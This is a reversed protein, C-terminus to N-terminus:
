IASPSSFILSSDNGGFGFSNSMVHRLRVDTLNETVPCFDLGPDKTEFRLNAPIFRHQICLISIVAELAGAASTTHGSFCKTSGVYPMKDGFLAKLAVGESLDNNETGTGHANVYDIDSPSLGAVDLAAQMAALAGRGDPSSATQHYADCANGWGSLLARVRAGRMDAHKKSEMVIFAAGEGLNLGKRSADFPRCPNSDLIMLSNFGNLHYKTLCETGGAIVIDYEGSLILEAGFAIANAAASCATSIVDTYAVDCSLADAIFDTSVGNLHLRILQSFDPNKGFEKFYRETIDMGGVTTGSILAVRTGPILGADEEAQRAAVIGLLSSRSIVRGKDERCLDYLQSDSLDVEGCPLDSHSTSLHKLPAIPCIGDVLHRYTQELGVGLASIIGAGTIAIQRHM